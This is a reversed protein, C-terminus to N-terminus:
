REFNLRKGPKKKGVLDVAPVDELFLSPNVGVYTMEAVKFLFRCLVYENMTSEALNTQAM